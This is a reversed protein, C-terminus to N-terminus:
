WEPELGGHLEVVVMGVKFKVASAYGHRSAVNHLNLSIILLARTSPRGTFHRETNNLAVETRNRTRTFLNLM